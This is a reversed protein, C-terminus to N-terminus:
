GFLECVFGDNSEVLRVKETGVLEPWVLRDADDVLFTLVEGDDDDASGMMYYEWFYPVWPNECEFKGLGGVIEECEARLATITEPTVEGAQVTEILTTLDM